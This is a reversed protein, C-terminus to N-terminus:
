AHTHCSESKFTHCRWRPTDKDIYTHKPTHTHMPTHTHPCASEYTHSIEHVYTIHSVYIQSVVREYKVHNIHMHPAHFILWTMCVHALRWFRTMNCIRILWTMDIFSDHWVYTTTMDCTHILLKVHIFSDRCVHWHTMDRIRILCAVYLM